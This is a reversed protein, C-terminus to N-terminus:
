FNFLFDWFEKFSLLYGWFQTKISFEGLNAVMCRVFNICFGMSLGLWVSDFGQVSWVLGFCIVLGFRFKTWVFWPVSCALIVVLINLRQGIRVFGTRVQSLRRIGTDGGVAGGIEEGSLRFGFVM